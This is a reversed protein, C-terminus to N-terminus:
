EHTNTYETETQFSRNVVVHMLDRAFMLQM